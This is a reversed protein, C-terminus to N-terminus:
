RIIRDIRIDAECGDFCNTNNYVFISLIKDGKKAKKVRKYCIYKGFDPRSVNLIEGDKKNNNVIGIDIEIVVYKNKRHTMLEYTMEDPQVIKVMGDLYKNIIKSYSKIVASADVQVAVFNVFVFLLIFILLGKKFKKM